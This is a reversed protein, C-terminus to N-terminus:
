DASTTPASVEEEDSPSFAHASTALASANSLLPYHLNVFELAVDALDQAFQDRVPKAVEEGGLMRYHQTAEIQIADVPKLAAGEPASSGHRIVTYGGFYYPHDGPSDHSVSPIAVYPDGNADARQELLAGFSTRGRLVQSFSLGGKNDRALTRIHSQDVHQADLEADTKALTTGDLGFGLEVAKREHATGHIDLLLGRGHERSMVLSAREIFAHTAAHALGADQGTRDDGGLERNADLKSRHLNVVVYHAKEGTMQEFAELMKESLEQTKSDSVLICAGSGTWTSCDRDSLYTPKLMGGHLSTVVVPLSGEHYVTYGTVQALGDRGSGSTADLTVDRGLFTSIAMKTGGAGTRDDPLDAEKGGVYIWGGDTSGSALLRAEGEVSVHEGLVRIAGGAGSGFSADLTGTVRVTAADGGHLVISGGTNNIGRARVVGSMDIINDVVGAAARAALLVRGGTADIVGSNSVMAGLPTGDPRRVAEMTEAGPALQVLGDGYLDLTFQTGSALAVRGARATIVGDNAVGPAVLAAFGGAADISGENVVVGQPNTSRSSTVVDSTMLERDPVDITTAVLGQVDTTSGAGFLVGNENIIMVRGNATLAGDLRSPEAGTVRNVLLSRANPQRITIREDAATGFSDWNVIARNPKTRGQEITMSKGSGDTRVSVRGEAVTAGKPMALAATASAFIAAALVAVSANKMKGLSNRGASPQPVM